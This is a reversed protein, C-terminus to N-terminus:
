LPMPLKLHPYRKNKEAIRALAERKRALQEPTLPVLLGKTPLTAYM